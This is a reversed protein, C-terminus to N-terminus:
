NTAMKKLIYLSIKKKYKKFADDWAQYSGFKQGLYFNEESKKM